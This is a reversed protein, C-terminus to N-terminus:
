CQHTRSEERHGFGGFTIDGHQSTRGENDIAFWGASTTNFAASAEILQAAAVQPSGVPNSSAPEYSMAVDAFIGSTGDTRHFTGHNLISAGDWEWTGSAVRGELDISAIQVDTLTHVEGADAVGDANLDQWVGFRSFAEDAASLVGDRNSDFARLGDLDSTASPKDSVFSIEGIGNVVGDSNRDITLFGNAPGIWSTLDPSGNGDMDFRATSAHQDVLHIGDGSLDLVIPAALSVVADKFQLREISTLRDTGDDGHHDPRLDKVTLVGDATSLEYDARDGRFVATDTGDNGSLVDNGGRGRMWDDGQGGTLVDDSDTAAALLNLQSASWITGDAFVVREIAQEGNALPEGGIAISDGNGFDLLLDNGRRIVTVQDPTIGAGLEIRDDGGWGGDWRDPGGEVITDNGDG